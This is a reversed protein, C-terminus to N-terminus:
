EPITDPEEFKENSDESSMNDFFNLNVKGGINKAEAENYFDLKERFISWNVQSEFITTIQQYGIM